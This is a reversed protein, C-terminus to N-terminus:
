KWTDKTLSLQKLAVSLSPLINFSHVMLLNASARINTM